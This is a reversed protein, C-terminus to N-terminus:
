GSDCCDGDKTETTEVEANFIWFGIGSAVVVCFFYVVNYTMVILMLLFGLFLNVMYSLTSILRLKPSLPRPMLRKRQASPVGTLSLQSNYNGEEQFLSRRYSALWEKFVCLSAICLCSFIVEFASRPQWNELLLVHNFSFHFSMSAMSGGSQDHHHEHNM